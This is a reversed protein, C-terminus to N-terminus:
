GRFEKLGFNTTQQKPMKHSSFYNKLNKRKFSHIAYKVLKRPVSLVDFELEMHARPSTKNLIPKLNM